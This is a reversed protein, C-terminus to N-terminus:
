VSCGARVTVSEVIATAHTSTYGRYRPNQREATWGITVSKGPQIPMTVMAFQEWIGAYAADMTPSALGNLCRIRRCAEDLEYHEGTVTMFAIVCHSGPAPPEENPPAFPDIM